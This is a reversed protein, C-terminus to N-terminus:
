IRSSRAIAIDTDSDFSIQAITFRNYLNNTDWLVSPKTFDEAEILEYNNPTKCYNFINKNDKLAKARIDPLLSTEVETDTLQFAENYELMNKINDVIIIDKDGSEFGTLTLKFSEVDKLHLINLGASLSTLESSSDSNYATISAGTGIKSISIVRNDPSSGIIEPKDWYIMILQTHDTLKLIPFNVELPTPITEPIKIITQKMDNTYSGSGEPLTPTIYNFVLMKLKEISDDLYMISLDLDEGGVVQILNNAQIFCNKLTEPTGNDITISQEKIINSGSSGSIESSLYQKLNPGLNLNLRSNVLYGTNNIDILPLDTYHTQGELKYSVQIDGRIQQPNNDISTDWSEFDIASIKFTSNKALTHVLMEEIKLEEDSGLTIIKWNYDNFARLGSDLIDELEVLNDTIIWTSANFTTIKLTIRTGPGLATLTTFGPNTYFFSEGEGLIISYTDSTGDVLDSTTFLANNINRRSWYLYLTDKLIERVRTRKEINETNSVPFLYITNGDLIISTTSTGSSIDINFSSKFINEEVNKSYEAIAVGDIVVYRTTNTPTYKMLFTRDTSTNEDTVKYYIYLINTGKLKYEKNAKLEFNSNFYAGSPFSIEEVLNPYSIQINENDKLQYIYSNITTDKIHQPNIKLETNVTEIDEYLTDYNTNKSQGLSFVFDTNVEFLNIKGALINKSLMEIYKDGTLAVEDGSGLMVKPTLIPEDLSVSKIRPDAQEITQLITEYPIEYGYDVERSNFKRFLAKNINDLIIKQEFANVKNVTSIKVKLSYYNKICYIDTLATDKYYHSLNDENNELQYKIDWIDSLPRFSNKYEDLNYGRIPRLPYLCLDYPTIIDPDTNNIIVDGYSNFSAVKNVYNIDTRRDAVQVNSVLKNQNDDEMGYIVNKYDRCAILNDFTGITRKFSKYAEDITEPDRGNISSELNNITFVKEEGTTGQIPYVVTNANPDSTILTIKGSVIETLFNNKINGKVGNTRIYKIILGNNILSSIDEPFEIYPLRKSSDYGFKFVENGWTVRNLNDEKRWFSNIDDENYIYIGNSAVEKEPFYVRNNEDLDQLQIINNGLITLEQYSGEMVPITYAKGKKDIIQDKTLIYNVTTDVDTFSTEFAKLIFYDGAEVIKDGTYIINVKTTASNYYKMDYGLRSSLERMSNEQTLSTMFRENTNKDINYNNKDALFALLKILVVGPDSENSLSPDWRSTLTPILDLLEPYITQFDKNTYSKNHIDLDKKTIM